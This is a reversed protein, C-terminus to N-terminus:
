FSKFVSSDFAASEPAGFRSPPLLDQTEPTAARHCNIGICLKM